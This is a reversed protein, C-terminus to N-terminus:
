ITSSFNRLERKLSSLAKRVDSHRMIAIPDIIPLTNFILVSITLVITYGPTKQANLTRFAIIEGILLSLPIFVVGFLSLFMIFFTVNAKRENNFYFTVEESDNVPVVQNRIQKAKIFLVAYMVLPVCSGWVTFFVLSIPTWIGCAKPNTCATDIACHWTVRSFGSCDLILLISALIVAITYLGVCLGIVLKKRHRRYWFPFFVLCFRDSVFAFMLSQRSQRLFSEVFVSVTCLVPGFTWQQAFGGVITLPFIFFVSALDVVVVQLALYFTTQRLIKYKAILFILLCNLLVALPFMLLFFGIITNRLITETEIELNMSGTYRTEECSTPLTQNTLNIEFGYQNM